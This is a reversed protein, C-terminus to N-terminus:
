SYQEQKHHHLLTPSINPSGGFAGWVQCDKVIFYNGIELLDPDDEGVEQEEDVLQEKEKKTM